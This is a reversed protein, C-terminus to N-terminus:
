VEEQNAAVIETYEEMVAPDDPSRKRVWALNALALENKGKSILWRPSEKIFPLLIIMLAAPAIQFGLPIPSLDLISGLM